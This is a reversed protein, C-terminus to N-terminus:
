ESAGERVVPDIQERLAVRARHLRTKVAGPSIELLKAVEATDLEEIDRLMLVNRYSEPLRDIADRVSRRVEDRELLEDAGAPWARPTEEHHGDDLFNPLLDDISSKFYLGPAMVDTNINDGFVWAKGGIARM